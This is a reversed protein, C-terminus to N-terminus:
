NETAAILGFAVADKARLRAGATPEPPQAPMVPLQLGRRHLEHEIREMLARRTAEDPQLPGGALLPHVPLAREARFLAQSGTIEAEGIFTELGQFSVTAKGASWPLWGPMVLRFGAEDAHVERARIPLPYGEGDLLTLHAAAGRALAQRALDRWQPVQWSAKSGTGSPAPDSQPFVTGAPARWERPAGEMAAPDSWWRIVAPAVCTIIRTFYWIAPRTVREYHVVRPDIAPTLIEEALYRELNGQMDRDRVAAMGSILVVPEDATGEFLMGVKPNRRARDAKAPYALGTATDITAGDSSLFPVLPSDIPVGAGSVTAFEAVFRTAILQAVEAPLQDLWNMGM